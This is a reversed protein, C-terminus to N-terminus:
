FVEDANMDGRALWWDSLQNSLRGDGGAERWLFYLNGPAPLYGARSMVTRLATSSTSCLIADAEFNAGLRDCGQLVAHLLEPRSLDCVIDSIV